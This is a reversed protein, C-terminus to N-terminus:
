AAGSEPCGRSSAALMAAGTAGVALMAGHGFGAVLVGSAGAGVAQGLAIALFPRVAGRAPREPHLRTGAVLHLSTLGMYAIGFAGAALGAALPRDAVLSFVAVSAALMTAGLAHTRRLGIRDVLDGAGGGALGGVGVALWLWAGDGGPAQAVIDPAFSWFGGSCLGMAVARALLARSARSPPGAASVRLGVGQGPLVAWLAPVVALAAAAFLLYAERWSTLLLLAPTATAVGVSTGANMVAETRDRLAGPVQVRTAETLAPMSWGTCLGCLAAGLVLGSLASATAMGGLGAVGAVMALVASRRPGLRATVTAALVSAACFSLFPVAALAGARAPGLGLETRLEPLFLGLAFRALGFSVAIAAAGVLALRRARAADAAGPRM